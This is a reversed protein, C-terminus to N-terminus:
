QTKDRNLKLFMQFGPDTYAAPPLDDVLLAADVKAMERAANDDLTWNITVLGVLLALVPLLVSARQWWPSEGGGGMVLSNGVQVVAGGAQAQPRKRRAVAQMRAHRLREGIDHPLADNGDSLAAAIKLGLREELLEARHQHTNSM